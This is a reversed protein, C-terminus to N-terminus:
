LHAPYEPGGPPQIRFAFAQEVLQPVRRGAFVAPRYKMRPLAHRVARVFGAEASDLVKLTLTDAYGTSDVIFRAYVVGQVGAQLLEAPYQPGEATPDLAAASDVEIESMARPADSEPSPADSADAPQGGGTRVAVPQTGDKTAEADIGESPALPGGIGVFTLREEAPPPAYRQLPALFRVGESTPVPKARHELYSGVAFAGIVLADFGVGLGQQWLASRSWRRSSEFASLGIHRIPM